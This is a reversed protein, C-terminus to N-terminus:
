WYTHRTIAPAEALWGDPTYMYFMVTQERPNLPEGRLLMVAGGQCHMRAWGIPECRDTDILEFGLLEYFPISREIEAVRLMPTYWGATTTM